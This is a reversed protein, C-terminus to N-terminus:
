PSRRRLPANGIGPWIRLVGLAARIAIWAATAYWVADLATPSSHDISLLLAVGLATSLAMANRLYRYDKSGWHIGDTVFSLANLPQALALIPWSSAFLGQAELPVLLAAVAPELAIMFVALLAGTGVAWAVSVSAVRRAVAPRGAGLFYGILSQAVSAYADLLFALLMWMQRIAQHAAGAPTGIQLAARTSLTMFLLLAATRLILDRGVVLLSRAHALKVHWTWGIQRTIVVIAWSAAALQSAVTAWAAGAIGLAPIPGWGFILVSDLIINMATMGAAIWMPTRMDQLGRLAGFGALLALSAPFGLLLVESYTAASSVTAPDDSMWEMAPVIAFSFVVAVAVGLAGAVILALSAVGRIEDRRGQGIVHAVETQTGVGLFNFVWLVSALLATAAGLGATAASGLREVFATDVVGAIPQVVLSLM